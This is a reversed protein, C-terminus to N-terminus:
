ASEHALVVTLRVGIARAYRTLTTITPNADEQNELRSLTSKELGSRQNIDALSLGQRLREAKLLAVTQQLEVGQQMAAALKQRGLQQLEPLEEAIQARIVEHRVAEEPTASRYIRKGMQKEMLQVKELTNSITPEEVNSKM